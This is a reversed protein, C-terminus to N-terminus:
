AAEREAKDNADNDVTNKAAAEAAKGTVIGYFDKWEMERKMQRMRKRWDGGLRANETKLDSLGNDIRMVAAETEKLEDIQGRSAGVWDCGAYAEFYQGEYISPARRPITTIEGKNIAEELWLRYVITAFRDAVMRKVSLMAKHTENMAARASSYNTKTYDRSLQEYSVGLAAAINRLLSQEFDSGLPGGQGAGRLTLRSGPPLHPIKAGNIHLNKSGGTFSGISNFHGAIYSDLADKIAEPSMDTGGLHAFIAETPLDSEITAAYTANIVANQLVTKRFDKTMKMETLAAVMMSIGRSQDPRLQEFIHIMQMRGWPKRAPVYKHNYSDPTMWDHPHAMRVYYGQPAGFKNKRVGMRVNRDRIYEPPTTLRDTDIMQIATNFSRPMDRLWEVSALAEGHITHTDVAMRVLGTLTNTRAADPWNEVSEAWADFKEECEEEYEDEWQTDETGFLMKSSARAGLMFYSGVINDKRLTAGGQVYADNRNTDRSRADAMRKASVLDADASRIAPAYSAMERSFASAGDYADGAIATAEGVGNPVRFGGPTPPSGPSPPTGGLLALTEDDLFETSM